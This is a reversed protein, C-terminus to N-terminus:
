LAPNVNTTMDQVNGFSATLLRINGLPQMWNGSQDIVTQTCGTGTPSTYLTFFGVGASTRAGAVQLVKWTTEPLPLISWPSAVDESPDVVYEAGANAGSAETGAIIQYDASRM